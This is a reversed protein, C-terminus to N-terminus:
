FVCYYRVCVCTGIQGNSYLIVWKTAVAEHTPTTVAFPTSAHRQRSLVSEVEMVDSVIDDAMMSLESDSQDGHYCSPSERRGMEYDSSIVDVIELEESDCSEEAEDKQRKSGKTREDEVAQETSEKPTNKTTALPTQKKPSARKLKSPHGGGPKSHLNSSTQVARLTTKAKPGPHACPPPTFAHLTYSLVWKTKQTERKQYKGKRGDLLVFHKTESCAVTGGSLAVDFLYYQQHINIPWGM